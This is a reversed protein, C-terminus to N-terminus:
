EEDNDLRNFRSTANPDLWTTQGFYSRTYAITDLVASGFQGDGYHKFGPRVQITQGLFNNFEVWLGDASTYRPRYFLEGAYTSVEVLQNNRAYISAPESPWFQSYNHGFFDDITTVEQRASVLRYDEALMMVLAQAEQRALETAYSKYSRILDNGFLFALLALM